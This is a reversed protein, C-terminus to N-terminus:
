GEKAPLSRDGQLLLDRCMAILPDDRRSESTVLYYTKAAPISLSLPRVLSGVKLYEYTVFDSALAIGSGALAANIAMSLRNFYAHRVPHRVSRAANLWRAWEKGNDEHLLRHNALDRVSRLPQSHLLSPSCIPYLHLEPLATWHFGDWPPNDYVIAMDVERWDIQAAERAIRTEFSTLDLKNAVAVLRPALWAHALGSPASFVLSKARSETASDVIKHLGTDLDHLLESVTSHFRRGSESLTLRRKSRDFLSLDVAKELMKMQYSVAGQTLGLEAAAARLNGHRAVAEFARLFPLARHSQM